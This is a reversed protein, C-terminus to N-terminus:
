QQTLTFIISYFYEGPEVEYGIPKVVLDYEYFANRPNNSNINHTLINKDNISLLNLNFFNNSVKQNTNRLKLGFMNDTLRSFSYNLTPIIKAEVM